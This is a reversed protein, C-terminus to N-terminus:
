GCCGAFISPNTCSIYLCSITGNQTDALQCLIDHDLVKQVAAQAAAERAATQSTGSGEVFLSDVGLLPGINVRETYNSDGRPITEWPIQVSVGKDRAVRRQFEALLQRVADM